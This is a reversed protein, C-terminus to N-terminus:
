PNGVSHCCGAAAVESLLVAVGSTRRASAEVPLHELRHLLVVAVCGGVFEV